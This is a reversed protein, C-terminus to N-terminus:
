GICYMCYLFNMMDCSLIYLACAHLTYIFQVSYNYHNELNPSHQFGCMRSARYLVFYQIM